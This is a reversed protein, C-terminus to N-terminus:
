PCMALQAVPKFFDEDQETVKVDVQNQKAYPNGICIKEGASNRDFDGAMELFGAQNFVM